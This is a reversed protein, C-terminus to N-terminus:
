ALAYPALAGRFGRFGPFALREPAVYMLRVLGAAARAMRRRMEGPDLTSALFTASVGRAELAQVQDAMLSILPSVVLTTGGLLRAPLQLSRQRRM